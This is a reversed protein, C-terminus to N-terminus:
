HKTLPLNRNIKMLDVTYELSWYINVLVGVYVGHLCFPLLSTIIYVPTVSYFM